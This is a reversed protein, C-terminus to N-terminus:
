GQSGIRRDADSAVEEGRMARVLPIQDTPFPTEQDPLYLGYQSNWLDPGGEQPGLHMIRRAAANFHLFRGKEDAVVVGDSMSELISELVGAQGRLKARSEELERTRRGLEGAIKRLRESTDATAQGGAGSVEEIALARPRRGAEGSLAGPATGGPEGTVVVRGGSGPTAADLPHEAM